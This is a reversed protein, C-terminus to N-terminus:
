REGPLLGEMLRVVLRKKETDVEMITESTAPILVEGAAGEVKFVDNSGTSIIGTIHGLSRGEGTFVEIGMFEFQYHEGEPLNPLATKKISVKRGNLKEAADRDAVGALTLLLAGTQPRQSVVKFEREEGIFVADLLFNGEEEIGDAFGELGGYPKFKIEGKVGHAGVVKGIPVTVPPIVGKPSIGKGM